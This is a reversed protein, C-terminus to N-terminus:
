TIDRHMRLLPLQPHFSLHQPALSAALAAHVQSNLKGYPYNSSTAGHGGFASMAQSIGAQM